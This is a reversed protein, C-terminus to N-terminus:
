RKQYLSAGILIVGLVLVGGSLIPPITHSTDETNQLKLDGIRAVEKTQQTTFVPIAFGLLGVVVLIVGIIMLGNTRGM